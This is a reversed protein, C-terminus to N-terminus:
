GFWGNGRTLVLLLWHGLAPLYCHPWLMHQVCQVKVAVEGGRHRQECQGRPRIHGEGIEVAGIGVHHEVDSAFAEGAEEGGPINEGAGGGGLVKAQNRLCFCPDFVPGCALGLTGDTKTHCM